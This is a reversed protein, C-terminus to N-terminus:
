KEGEALEAAIEDDTLEAVEGGSARLSKMRGEEDFDISVFPALGGPLDGNMQFAMKLGAAGPAGGEAILQDLQGFRKVSGVVRAERVLELFERQLETAEEGEADALYAMLTSVGVGAAEAIRRVPWGDKYAELVAERRTEDDLLTPRGAM